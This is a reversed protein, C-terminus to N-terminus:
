LFVDTETQFSFISVHPIQLTLIDTNIIFYEIINNHTKCLSDSQGIYM